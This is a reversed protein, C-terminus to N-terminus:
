KPLLGTDQQAQNMIKKDVNKVTTWGILSGYHHRFASSVNGSISYEVEGTEKEKKFSFFYARYLNTITKELSPIRDKSIGFEELIKSADIKANDGANKIAYEVNKVDGIPMIEGFLKATDNDVNDFDVLPKNKQRKISSNLVIVGNAKTKYENIYRDFKIDAIPRKKKDDCIIVILESYQKSYDFLQMSLGRLQQLNDSLKVEIAINHNIIIDAGKGRNLVIQEKPFSGRLFQVLQRQLDEEDRIPEEAVFGDQIISITIQSVNINTQLNSESM